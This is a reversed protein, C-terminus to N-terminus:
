VFFEYIMACHDSLGQVAEIKTFEFTKPLLLYDFACQESPFSIYDHYEVSCRYEENWCDRERLIIEKHINFDGTLIYDHPIKELLERLQLYSNGNSALHLNALKMGNDFEVMQVIRKHFDPRGRKDEPVKTLASCNNKVIDLDTMIALGDSQSKGNKDTFNEALDAVVHKYKCSMLENIRGVLNSNSDFTVEQLCVTDAREHDLFKAIKELRSEVNEKRGALNLSIIKM